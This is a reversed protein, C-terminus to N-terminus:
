FSVNKSKKSIGAEEEYDEVIRKKKRQKVETVITESPVIEYINKRKLKEKFIFDLRIDGSKILKIVEATFFNCYEEGLYIWTKKDGELKLCCRIREGYQNNCKEADTIKFRKDPTLQDIKLFGNENRKKNAQALKNLLDEM